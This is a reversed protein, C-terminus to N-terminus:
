AQDHENTLNFIADAIDAAVEAKSKLQFEQRKNDRGFLTIKNTESHFGVGPEGLQNLVILDLKKSHLKKMANADGQETELAFGVLIQGPKRHKGAMAAIDTTPILEISMSDGSRKIKSGAPEKPTYDAVAAAFVLIDEGAQLESVKEAMQAASEVPYVRISPHDAKLSVPGSVLDVTAGEGAMVEALAYGMRGSSHNGIFRVPDIKEFTPGATILVRRGEFRSKKKFYNRIWAVIKEPEEMRGKGELGSALEGVAPEIVLNGRSQLIRLNELTAPHGFMDLDMAPAVVVPCRASLYTTLLLNDCIGHAMKAITNATAPAIIMMDAWIGLEIHSNWSGDDHKFFDTLVTNGSLTALTVPTIFERGYPTMIVKVEAGEKRLLRTLYASKYAAISGTIGLIFKKGQLM